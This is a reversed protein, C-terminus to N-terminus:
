AKEGPTYLQYSAKFNGSESGTTLDVYITGQQNGAIPSTLNFAGTAFAGVPFLHSVRRFTFSTGWTRTGCNFVQWEKRLQRNKGVVTGDPYNVDYLFQLCLKAADAPTSPRTVVSGVMTMLGLLGLLIGRKIIRM